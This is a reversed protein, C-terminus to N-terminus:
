RKSDTIALVKDKMVFELMRKANKGMAPLADLAYWNAEAIEKGDITIEPDGIDEKFLSVTDKKHEHDFDISRLYEPNQLQIGVEEKCERIVAEMDSEGRHVGGGPFTWTNPYYTLRVMLIKGQNFLIAKVGKTKPRLIFWFVQRLKNIFIAIPFNRMIITYEFTM